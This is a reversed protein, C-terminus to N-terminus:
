KGESEFDQPKSNPKLQAYDVKQFQDLRAKDIGIVALAEPSYSQIKARLYTAAHNADPFSFSEKNGVSDTLTYSIPYDVKDSIVNEYIYKTLVGTKLFQSPAVVFEDKHTSYEPYDVDLRILKQEAKNGNKNAYEKVLNYVEENALSYKVDGGKVAIKGHFKNNSIANNQETLEKLTAKAKSIKKSDQKERSKESEKALVREKARALHKDKRRAIARKISRAVLVTVTVAALAGIALVVIDVLSYELAMGWSGGNVIPVDNLNIISGISAILRTIM